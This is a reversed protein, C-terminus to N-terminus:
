SSAITAVRNKQFILSRDIFPPRVTIFTRANGARQAFFTQLGSYEASLESANGQYRLPKLKLGGPLCYQIAKAPRITFARHLPGIEVAPRAAPSQAEVAAKM